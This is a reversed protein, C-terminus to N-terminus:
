RSIPTSSGAARTEARQPARRDARPLRITFELSLVGVVVGERLLPVGIATRMKAVAVTETVAFDPDAALDAIRVV